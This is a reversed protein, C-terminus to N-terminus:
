CIHICNFFWLKISREGLENIINNDHSCKNGIVRRGTVREIEDILEIPFDM